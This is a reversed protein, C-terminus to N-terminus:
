IRRQMVTIVKKLSFTTMIFKKLNININNIKGHQLHIDGKIAKIETVFFYCSFEHLRIIHHFAFHSKEEHHEDIPHNLYAGSDFRTYCIETSVVGYTM